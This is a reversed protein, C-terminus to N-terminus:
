LTKKWRGLMTSPSPRMGSTRFTLYDNLIQAHDFCLTEPLADLAFLKAQKADDAGVPIKASTPSLSAVFVTSMTHKRPDRLPNSYVYLLDELIVDLGTEEKAERVAAQEVPECYDVFGGPIAWGLPTFKREILVIQNDIVIVVDVTPAPNRYTQQQSDSVLAGEKYISTHEIKQCM